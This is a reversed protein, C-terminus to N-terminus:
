PRARRYPSADGVTPRPRREPLRAKVKLAIPGVYGGVADRDCTASTAYGAGNPRGDQRIVERRGSCGLYRPTMGGAFGRSGGYAARAFAVTQFVCQSSM